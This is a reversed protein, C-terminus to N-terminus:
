KCMRLAYGLLVILQAFLQGIIVWLPATGHSAVTLLLVLSTVCIAAILGLAVWMDRLYTKM